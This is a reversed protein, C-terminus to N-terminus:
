KKTEKAAQAANMVKVLDPCYERINKDVEIAFAQADARNLSDRDYSRKVDAMCREALPAEKEILNFYANRFSTDSPNIEMTIDVMKLYFHTCNCIDVAAREASNAQEKAKHVIRDKPVASVFSDLKEHGTSPRANEDITVINEIPQATAFNDALTTVNAKNSDTACAYISLVLVTFFLSYKMM